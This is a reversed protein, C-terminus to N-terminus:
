NCGWRILRAPGDCLFQCRGGARAVLNDTQETSRGGLFVRWGYTGPKITRTGTGGNAGADIMVDAPGWLVLRCTEAFTNVVTLTADGQGSVVPRATPPALPVAPKITPLPKITPKVTPLAITPILTMTPLLPLFTPAVTAPAPTSTPAPTATVVLVTVVPTAPIVTVVTQVRPQCAALLAATVLLLTVVVFTRTRLM